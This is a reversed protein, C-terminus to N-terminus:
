WVNPLAADTERIYAAYEDGFLALLDAEEDRIRRRMTLIGVVMVVLFTAPAGYEFPWAILVLFEGLYIPHRIYRYLGSRVIGRRMDAGVSESFFGLQIRAGLALWLGGLEVLLGLACLWRPADGGYLYTREFPAAFFLALVPLESMVRRAFHTADMGLASEDRVLLDAFRFAAYAILYAAAYPRQTFYESIGLGLAVAGLVSALFIVTEALRTAFDRRGPRSLPAEGAPIATSGVADAALSGTPAKLSGTAKRASSESTASTDDVSM